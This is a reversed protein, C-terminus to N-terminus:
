NVCLIKKYINELLIHEQQKREERMGVHGQDERGRRKMGVMDVGWFRKEIDIGCM